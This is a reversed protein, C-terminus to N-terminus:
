DSTCTTDSSSADYEAGEYQDEDFAEEQVSATGQLSHGPAHSHDPGSRAPESPAEYIEYFPGPQEEGRDNHKSSGQQRKSSSKKEREKNNPARSSKKSKAASTDLGKGKRSSSSHGQPPPMGYQQAQGGWTTAVGAGEAGGHTATYGYGGQNYSQNYQYYPDNLSVNGFASELSTDDGRPAAPDVATAAAYEYQYAGQSAGRLM